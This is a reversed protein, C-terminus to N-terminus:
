RDDYRQQELHRDFLHDVKDWMETQKDFGDRGLNSRSGGAIRRVYETAAEETARDIKGANFLWTQFRVDSCRNGARQSPKMDWHSLRPRHPAPAQLAQRAAPDADILRAIAFWCQHGPNPVGLVRYAADYSEIPVEFILQVVGRSPVNKFNAYVASFVAAKDDTM